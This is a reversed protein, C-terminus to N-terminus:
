HQQEHAQPPQTSESGAIMSLPALTINKAALTSLWTNLARISKPTPRLVGIVHGKSRAEAELAKLSIEDLYYTNRAYPYHGTVAQTEIMPEAKPNIEFFGLGRGFVQKLLEELMHATDSFTSDTLAAVGAYGTTRSLVWELIQQNFMLSGKTLIAKPGPDDAPYSATQMPLQMWIEHGDNRADIQWKEPDAAYPSLILSVEPPLAALAETSVAESLGFGVVAISVVPGSPISFPRKYAMFPTLGKPSIVPLPGQAGTATLGEVPAARLPENGQPVVAAAEAVPAPPEVHQQPPEAIQEAPPEEGRAYVPSEQVEAVAPLPPFVFAREIEVAQSTLTGELATLTEESKSIIFVAILAYFLGVVVMGRVFAEGFTLKTHIANM